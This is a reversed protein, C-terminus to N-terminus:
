SSSNAFLRDLKEAESALTVGIVIAGPKIIYDGRPIVAQGGQLVAGILGSPPVAIEKLAQGVVPSRSQAQYESVELEGDELLTVSSIRGRKVLALVRNAVVIRPSIAFDIGIKEVIRTYDPRDILCATKSVGLERALLSSMVNNEDDGTLAIFYDARGIREERLLQIDTADGHLIRANQLREGAVEARLRNREILTIHHGRKELLEALYLGTEGGGAIVVGALSTAAPQLDFLPTGKDLVEPLGILTIRDGAELISNGRAIMVENERRISAVLMGSPVACERVTRGVFQSDPSLKITRLQIRGRAMTTLALANPFSVFTALESATSIEPSILLDIGLPDRFNVDHADYYFRSRVRAAVRACGMRKAAFAALMNTEDRETAALLLDTEGVSVTRLVGPDCANGHFVQVDMENEVAALRTPDLDLVVVDHDERALFKAINSGVTGAGVVIIRL